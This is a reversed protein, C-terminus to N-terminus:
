QVDFAVDLRVSVVLADPTMRSAGPNVIYQLDPQIALWENVQCRWTLELVLEVDASREGALKAARRAGSGMRALGIAVGFADDLQASWGEARVIGAGVYQAVPDVDPNAFGARLYANGWGHAREAAVYAGFERESRSPDTLTPREDGYSWAGLHFGAADTDYELEVVALPGSLHPWDRSPDTGNSSVDLLAFRVRADRGVEQLVRVGFATNPYVSPGAVGSQAIDVGMGQAGSIFLGAAEIVDFESNLDYRGALVATRGDFGYEIWAELLRTGPPADISSVAQLDGLARESFVGGYAHQVRVYGALPNPGAVPLEFALALDVLGLHTADQSLGGAVVAPFDGTWAIGATVEAVAAPSAVGLACLLLSTRRHM